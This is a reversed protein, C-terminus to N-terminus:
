ILHILLGDKLKPEFWTSKPPMIEGADSVALLDDMTTPFLSFALAAKGSDVARQLGDTGRAGGVFAIRRDTRVDNIGLVSKLIHEQLISVDLREAPDTDDTFTGRFLLRYWQQKYYMCIEGHSAPTTRDSPSVDFERALGAFLEDDSLGRLDTVVRNYALIKLQGAPFLGAVVFNYEEDGTHGPNRERLIERAQEASEARHHGDAIYLAPLESFADVLKATEAIRWMSQRIGDPGRFDYLPQRTVAEAILGDIAATSRFALFILGTQARVTLLHDTRDRVKDPRTKEHKKILGAEYEDLSCCAVVGTQEHTDSALRYIYLCSESEVALVGNDVLERLNRKARDFSESKPPRSGKPFEAEPRTVRLFSLPNSKIFDRVEHEDVVDYPVAAVQEVDAPRPRLARFPRILSM